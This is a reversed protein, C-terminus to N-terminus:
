HFYELYFLHHCGGTKLLSCKKWYKTRLWHLASLSKAKLWTCEAAQPILFTPSPPWFFRLEFFPLLSAHQISWLQSTQTRTNSSVKVTAAGYLYYNTLNLILIIKIQIFTCENFANYQTLAQSLLESYMPPTGAMRPTLCLTVRALQFCM